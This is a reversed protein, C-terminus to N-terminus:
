QSQEQAELWAEQEIALLRQMDEEDFVTAQPISTKGHEVVPGVVNSWDERRQMLARISEGLGPKSVGGVAHSGSGPGGPRKLKSKGKGINRHRKLYAQNLQSDLDDAITSWEQKAAAEEMLELVRARRAGNMQGVRQLEEQLYRLRAAVEDDFQGDYDPDNEETLFGMWRLEQKLKEDMERAETKPAAFNPPLRAAEPLLTAPPLPQNQQEETRGDTRGDGEVASLEGNMSNEGIPARRESRLLSLFRSSVPGLSIENSEALEDTMQEICGCPENISPEEITNQVNDLSSSQDEEAWIDKYHRPGRRPM